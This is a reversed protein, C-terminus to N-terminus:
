VASPLRAVLAMALAFRRDGDFLGDAGVEDALTTPGVLRVGAIRRNRGRRSLHARSFSLVPVVPVDAQGREALCAAVEACQARVADVLDTRRRGGITLAETGAAFRGGTREVLVEGDSGSVVSIVHVAAEGVFVHDVVTADPLLRRHLAYGREDAVLESLVRRTVLTSAITSERCAPCLADHWSPRRGNPPTPAVPALPAGCSCLVTQRLRMLDIDAV